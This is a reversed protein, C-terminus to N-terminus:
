PIVYVKGSYTRLQADVNRLKVKVRRLQKTAPGEIGQQRETEWLPELTQVLAVLFDRKEARKRLREAHARDADRKRYFRVVTRDYATM